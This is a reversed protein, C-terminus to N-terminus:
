MDFISEDVGMKSKYYPTNKLINKDITKTKFRKYLAEKNNDFEEVIEEPIIDRNLYVLTTNIDLRERFKNSEIVTKANEQLVLRIRNRFSTNTRLEEIDIEGINNIINEHLKIYHRNTIRKEFKGNDKIGGWEWISPINDGSDGCIIKNLIVEKPNVEHLDLKKLNEKILDVGNKHTIKEFIDVNFIDIEQEEELKEYLWKNFGNKAILTNNKQRTDYLVCYVDDNFDVIQSLDSDASLILVNDPEEKNLIYNSWLYILDDGEANDIRSIIIGNEELIDLFENVSEYFVSWNIDDSKTRNDKYISGNPINIGKRWSKSDKVCIVRKYGKFSNLSYSLDTVMRTIFTPMDDPNDFFKNNEHYKNKDFGKAIHLNKYALYDTDVIITLENM